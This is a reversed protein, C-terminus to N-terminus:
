ARITTGGAARDGALAAAVAGPRLGSVIHVVLGPHRQVADLMAGVKSAMGGTVDVVGARAGSLAAALSERDRPTVQDFRRAGPHAHPDADFVGDVDTALVIRTPRLADALAALLPETSVITGGRARDLAADGYTVPVLRAALREAILAGRVAVVRGADCTAVLGGPVAVAPLDAAILADVVATNLRGAAAAVRALAMADAPRDLFGTERAAVHGFSGSGHAVVLRGDRAGPWAAVEGALRVLVADRVAEHGHKETLLAGGLKLFVTGTM